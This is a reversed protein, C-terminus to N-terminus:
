WYMKVKDEWPKEAEDALYGALGDALSCLDFGRKLREAVLALM